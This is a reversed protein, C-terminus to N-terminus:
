LFSQSFSQLKATRFKYLRAPRHAGDQAMKDTEELVELSLIKKRFNRKDFAKGFIAEYTAQLESLTFTKPMLSAAANTSTALGKLQKHAFAVIDSHDYALKPLGIVPLFQPNQLFTAGQHPGPRLGRGLGIYMLTVAYGRPDRGAQDFAFPREVVEIDKAELGTKELLVRDLALRSTEAPSIYAGPLAWSGEFPEFGRQIVLVTLKGDAMQFVVGDVTLIPFEPMGVTYCRVFLNSKKVLM